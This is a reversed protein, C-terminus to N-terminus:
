IGRGKRAALRVVANASLLGTSMLLALYARRELPDHRLAKFAWRRAERGNTQAAEAFAIQGQIRATGRSSRAFDPHKNLLYRLADSITAWKGSFFSGTQWTIRVLPRDVLMIPAHETARLVWDYDEAFSGPLDEDVLGIEDLLAARRVLVSSPHLEFVRSRLLMEHDVSRRQRPRSVPGDPGDLVLHCGVVRTSPHEQLLAVQAELKGPLWEDDDDCFAVLDGSAALIGTNRAGALGPRRENSMLRLGRRDSTAVDPPVIDSKDFVVICEITGSYEQNLIATVCRALPEPREHTAVVVSV